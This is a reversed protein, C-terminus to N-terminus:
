GVIDWDKIEDDSTLEIQIEHGGFMDNDGYSITAKGSGRIEISVPSGMNEKFQEATIDPDDDDEKCENATDLMKEVCFEKIKGDLEEINRMLAELRSAATDAKDSSSKDLNLYVECCDGSIQVQGEYWKFRRNLLFEEGCVDIVVDKLYEERFAELEPCFAEEEVISLLLYRNNMSPLIDPGLEKQICKVVRLRCIVNDSFRHYTHAKYEENKVLAEIRGDAVILEGTRTDVMAPFYSTVEHFGELMTAGGWGTSIYVLINFEEEQFGSLYEEVTRM